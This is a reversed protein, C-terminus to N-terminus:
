HTSDVPCCCHARMRVELRNNHAEAQDGTGTSRQVPEEAGRQAELNPPEQMACLACQRQRVACCALLVAVMTLGSGQAPWQPTADLAVHQM